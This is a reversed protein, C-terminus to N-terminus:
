QINLHLDRIRIARVAFSVLLLVSFSMILIAIILISIVIPQSISFWSLLGIITFILVSLYLGSISISLRKLQTIKLTIIREYLERNKKLEKVENNLAIIFNSTSLIILAIGPLLSIPIYWEM